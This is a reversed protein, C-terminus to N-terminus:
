TFQEWRVSSGEPSWSVKSPIVRRRGTTSVVWTGESQTYGSKVMMEYAIASALCDPGACYVVINEEPHLHAEANKPDSICISGPIHKLTFEADGLCFVLKFDEKDDLMRKVDDREIFEM